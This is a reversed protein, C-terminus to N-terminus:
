RVQLIILIKLDVRLAGIGTHHGLHLFLDSVVAQQVLPCPRKEATGRVLAVTIQEPCRDICIGHTRALLYRDNDALRVAAKVDGFRDGRGPAVLVFAINRNRVMDVTVAAKLCIGGALSIFRQRLSIACIFFLYVVVCFERLILVCQRLSAMKETSNETNAGSDQLHRM